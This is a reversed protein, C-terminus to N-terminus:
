LELEDLAEKHRESQILRLVLERLISDKQDPHQLMLTRLFGIRLPNANDQDESAGLLHVGLTWMSKWDFERCRALITWAKRARELDHRQLSLQLIDYVRRIHVKRATGPQKSNLSSFLFDHHM